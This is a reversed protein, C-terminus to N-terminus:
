YRYQPVNAYGIQAYNVGTVAPTYSSSGRSPEDDEEDDEEGLFGDDDDFGNSQENRYHMMLRSRHRPAVIGIERVKVNWEISYHKGFRLRSAPLMTETNDHPTVEIPEKTM